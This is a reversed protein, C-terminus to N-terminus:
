CGYVEKLRAQTAPGCIGDVTLGHECQFEEIAAQFMKQDPEKGPLMYYGLNRLRGIQGSVEDLPDLHGVKLQVQVRRDLDQDNVTVAEHFEVSGADSTRMPTPLPRELAGSGDTTMDSSQGAVAFACPANKVPDNFRDGIEVRLKLPKGALLYTHKKDTAANHDKTGREPIFLMDGPFLIDPSHRKKRLDANEPANWVTDWRFFGYQQAIGAVHEGQRVTYYGAM